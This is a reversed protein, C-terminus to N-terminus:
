FLKGEEPLFISLSPFPSLLPINFKPLKEKSKKIGKKKNMQRSSKSYRIKFSESVNIILFDYMLILNM